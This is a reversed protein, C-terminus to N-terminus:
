HCLPQMRESRRMREELKAIDQAAAKRAEAPGARGFKRLLAHFVSQLKAGVWASRAARAQREIEIFDVGLVFAGEAAMNSRVFSTPCDAPKGNSAPSGGSGPVLGLALNGFYMQQYLRM